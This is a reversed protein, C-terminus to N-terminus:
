GAAAGPARRRAACHRTGRCGRLADAHELDVPQQRQRRLSEQFTILWTTSCAFSCRAAIAFGCAFRALTRSRWSDFVANRPRSVCSLRQIALSSGASVPGSRRPCSRRCGCSRSPPPAPSAASRRRTRRACAAGGTTRGRSCCRRSHRARARPRPRRAHDAEVGILLRELRRERPGGGGVEGEQREVQVGGIGAGVLAPLLRLAGAEAAPGLSIGQEREGELVMQRDAAVHREILEQAQSVPSAGRPTISNTGLDSGVTCRISASRSSM